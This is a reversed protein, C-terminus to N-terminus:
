FTIAVITTPHNSSALLPSYQKLCCILWKTWSLLPWQPLKHPTFFFLSRIRRTCRCSTSIFHPVGVWNSCLILSFIFVTSKGFSCLRSFLRLPPVDGWSEGARDKHHPKRYFWFSGCRREASTPEKSLSRLEVFALECYLPVEHTITFGIARCIIDRKKKGRGIQKGESWHRLVFTLHFGMPFVLATAKEFLLSRFSFVDHAAVLLRRVNSVDSRFSM